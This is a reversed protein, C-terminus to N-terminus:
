SEDELRAHYLSKEKEIREQLKLRLKNEKIEAAPPTLTGDALQKCLADIAASFEARAPAVKAM